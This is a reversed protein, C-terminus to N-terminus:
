SLKILYSPLRTHMGHMQDFVYDMHSYAEGEKMIEYQYTWLDYSTRDADSLSDYDFKEHLEKTSAAIWALENEEAAKSLDDIKDYQDKRGQATLALPSMQLREEYKDDFWQNM